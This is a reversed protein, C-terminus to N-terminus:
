AEIGYAIVDWKSDASNYVCGFYITKGAVTATPLTVGIARFIANYALTQIAATKFRMLLRNGDQPTGSPAAITMGVTGATLTYFNRLSGGTPAPTASSATTTIEEVVNTTAIMTKNTFVNTSSITPVTVGEVSIVGASVRAITTDSAHGLEVSGVGLATSTSAVIGAVPLGSCNTLTGSSPTGLVPTTLTPSTLTKGTLTQTASVTVINVGEIAVVGASVRSITTDTAHGLEISGVGLAASTSAVLGAVPLGTCNTLTGSGPTGLVPATFTPTALTPSTARVVAGTGTNATVAVGNILFSNGGAATDFTKNTFTDVTGRAVLTDTGGPLTMTGSGAAAAVVLAIAGSTSGSITIGQTGAIVGTTDNITVVSGQLLGGSTGDARIIANDTGGVSGVIFTGTADPLTLVQNGALTAPAILSIYNSGNDADEFLRIDTPNSSTALFRYVGTGKTQFDLGVNADGGSASLKPNTGTAANAITFENVASATTAFIVQELGNADALFGGNAIKAAILTKNSLDDTTAKGVLTDTAAPLTLTGSAAAAPQIVTQGSGSGNFSISIVQAFAGTDSLTVSSGQATSGGVGDARVLANDTTGVTGGPLSGGTAELTSGTFQLGTGLSIEEAVGTTGSYRGILRFATFSNTLKANIQTQANSSLTNIYQLEANTITGDALKAADIGTPLDAAAIAGVTIPAGVSAQKLVYGTGGTATFDTTGAPLTIVSSGAIAAARINVSGSTSGNINIGQTGSIIGTTDAIIVPSSQILYGTTQDFRPVANDVVTGPGTVKLNLATQTATSVPKNADSTNDVNNLVLTLRAATADADDVLSRGFATFDALTATGSGTFYPLKNSASTTGAIAALEADYAQVDTGPVLALQTRMAAYNAAGLLSQVNASPTIGAYTTLNANFAQVDTGPVLALQTRMAAYNAAGLLSQVNASPTIGAYTTLNANYAQVNVGIGLGLNTRATAASSVDSLNNAAILAGKLNNQLIIFDAGVAAQTGGASSTVCKILDGVEVAEGSAGGIKGAVTVYRDQGQTSAPYNPNASCDIGSVAIGGGVVVADVYDKMAKVSAYKTDSLADATVNTSKNAVDEPTYGLATIVYGPGNAQLQGGVIGALGM